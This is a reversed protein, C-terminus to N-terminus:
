CSEEQEKTQLHGMPILRCNTTQLEMANRGKRNPEEHTEPEYYSKKKKKIDKKGNRQLKESGRKQM